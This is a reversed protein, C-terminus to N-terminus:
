IKMLFKATVLTVLSGELDARVVLKTDFPHRDDETNETEIVKYGKRQLIEKAREFPLGIYDRSNFM